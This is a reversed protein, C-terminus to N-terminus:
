LCPVNLMLCCCVVVSMLLISPPMKGDRPERLERPQVFEPKVSEFWWFLEAIFVMVNNQLVCQFHCLGMDMIMSFVLAEKLEGKIGTSFVVYRRAESPLM